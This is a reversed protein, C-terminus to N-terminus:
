RRRALVDDIHRLLGNVERIAIDAPDLAGARLAALRYDLLNRFYRDRLVRDYNLPTATDGFRIQRFNSLYYPRVVTVVFDRDDAQAHDFNVYVQDYLAVIRLRLSDDSVLNLGKIKLAEYVSRNLPVDWFRIVAGFRADTSDNPPAGTDLDARLAKIRSERVLVSTRVNTLADLDASLSSRMQRLMILELRRNERGASWDNVALALLVSVVILVIEGLPRMWRPSPGDRRLASHTFGNTVVYM